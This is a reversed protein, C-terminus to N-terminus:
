AAKRQIASRMRCKTDEDIKMNHRERGHREVKLM